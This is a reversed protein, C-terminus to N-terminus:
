RAEETIAGAQAEDVLMGNRRLEGLFLGVDERAQELGIEFEEAVAEALREESHTGDLMSFIKVGVPNLVKVESRTPLVVLGGEDGMQRFSAIPHRRPYQDTTM